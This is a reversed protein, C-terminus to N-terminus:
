LEKILINPATYYHYTGGVVADRGVRTYPAIFKKNYIFLGIVAGLSSIKFEDDIFEVFELKNNEYYEQYIYKEKVSKQLIEKWEDESYLKGPYVGHSGYDDVPKLIFGDKGKLLKNISNTDLFETLPIHAEIFANEEDSLIKKTMENRLINFILKTHMIQTRFSGVMVFADDLYANIFDKLNDIHKLFEVTVFRRYVLDIKYDKHYLNGDKYTLDRIDCIECNYGFEEFVEKFKLFENSTGIDLFDVIAINPNGDRVEHYINIIERVWPSFLEVNEIEFEKKFENMAITSTLIKGIENDENMASSGDTNFECFKFTKDDKYFIDYRCIPIDAEYGPDHLILKELEESFPFLNRYNKNNVYEMVVKHSISMLTDAIKKFDCKTKEDYFLGQYTAPVPKGKYIAKSNKIKEKMLKFDKLYKPIDKKIIEIYKDSYRKNFM